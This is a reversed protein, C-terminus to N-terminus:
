GVGGKLGRPDPQYKPKETEDANLQDDSKEPAGGTVRRVVLRQGELAAVPLRQSRGASGSARFGAGAAVRVPGSEISCQNSRLDYWEHKGAVDSGDILVLYPEDGRSQAAAQEAAKREARELEDRYRSARALRRSIHGQAQGEREALDYQTLGLVEYDYLLELDRELHKATHTRM